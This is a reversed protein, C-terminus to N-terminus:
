FVWEALIAYLERVYYTPLLWGATHAPATGYSLDCDKALQGARYLHFENSIIVVSENLANEKIVELSFKMNEETSTSQDEKYIRTADIGKDVLYRYMCEAESIDEGSGQGGSVVCMAEPNKELYEYAADLRERLMLSAREGYVRCGLVVATANKEPTKNCAGIMCGTEVMVLIGCLLILSGLLAIIRRSGKRKWGEKIWRHIRPMFGIYLVFFTALLMGTINGINLIGAVTFPMLFWLFLIICLVLALLRILVKVSKAKPEKKMPNEKKDARKKMHTKVQKLTKSKRPTKEKMISKDNM